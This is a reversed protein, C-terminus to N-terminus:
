SPTAAKKCVKKHGKKWHEGQCVADCYTAKGCGKCKKLVASPNRCWSCRYMEMASWNVKAQTHEHGSITGYDEPAGSYADPDQLEGRNLWANLDAEAKDPKIKSSSHNKTGDGPMKTMIDKWDRWAVDLRDLVAQHSKRLQNEKITMGLHISIEDALKLRAKVDELEAAGLEDGKVLFMMLLHLYLLEKMRKSDPPAEKLYTTSDEYSSMAFAFGEDLTLGTECARELKEIAFDAAHQAARFLMGFKLYATLNPCKLGKKAWRLGDAANTGLTLAYHFFGIQPSRAVGKRALAHHEPIMSNILFYKLEIMDAKDEMVQRQEVPLSPIKERMAKACFILSDEWKMFPLGLSDAKLQGTHRDKVRWVGRVISSESLPIIEAIKLGLSCLDRDKVAQKMADQFKWNAITTSTTELKDTASMRSRLHSPWGEKLAEIMRYPDGTEEDTMIYRGHVRLIGGVGSARMRVDASRLAAVFFNIADPDDWLAEACHRSAGALFTLVHGVLSQSADPHQRLIKLFVRTIRPIDVASPSLLKTDPPEENSVIVPVCHSIVCVALEATRLDEPRDELLQLISSSKTAILIKTDGGYQSTGHSTGNKLALLVVHTFAPNPLLPLAMSLFDAEKFVRGKLIADTTM